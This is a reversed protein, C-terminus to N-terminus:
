KVNITVTATLAPNYPVHNGKAFLARIIHKGASLKIEKCTSGDGMHIHNADKGVPKSLDKPLDVDVIIHHHGKGNNVGKKAPEVAVGETALCVKVPNTVMAGEPPTTITVANGAFASTTGLIFLSVFLLALKSYISIM